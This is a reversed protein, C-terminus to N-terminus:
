SNQKCIQLYLEMCHYKKGSPCSKCDSPQTGPAKGFAVFSGNPCKKCHTAVYGVVDSYFGGPFYILFLLGYKLVYYSVRVVNVTSKVKQM